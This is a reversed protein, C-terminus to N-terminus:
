LMLNILFIGLIVVLSSKVTVAGGGNGDEDKDDNPKLDVVSDYYNGYISFAMLNSATTNLEYRM